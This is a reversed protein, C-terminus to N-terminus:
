VRLSHLAWVGKYLNNDNIWKNFIEASAKTSWISSIDPVGVTRDVLLWAEAEGM